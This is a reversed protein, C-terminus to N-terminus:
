TQISHHAGETVILHDLVRIGLLQGAAQVRETVAVDDPSPELSGSPHNHALIIAAVTGLRIAPGFVERPHVMSSNLTGQSVTWAAILRHKSDLGIAIVCETARGSLLARAAQAASGPSSCASAVERVLLGSTIDSRQLPRLRTQAIRM